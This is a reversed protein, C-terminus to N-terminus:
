GGGSGLLSQAAQPVLPHSERVQTEGGLETRLGSFPLTRRVMPADPAVVYKVTFGFGVFGLAVLAFRFLATEPAIPPIDPGWM